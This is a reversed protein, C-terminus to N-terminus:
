TTNDGTVAQKKASFDLGPKKRVCPLGTGSFQGQLGLAVKIKGRLSSRQVGNELKSNAGSLLPFTSCLHFCGMEPAAEEPSQWVAKCLGLM